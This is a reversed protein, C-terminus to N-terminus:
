RGLVPRVGLSGVLGPPDEQIGVTLYPGLIAAGAEGKILGQRQRRPRQHDGPGLPSVPIVGRLCQYGQGVLPQFRAPALLLRSRWDRFRSSLMTRRAGM